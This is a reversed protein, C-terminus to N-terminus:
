WIIEFKIFNSIKIFLYNSNSLVEQLSTAVEHLKLWGIPCSALSILLICLAWIQIEFRMQFDDASSRRCVFQSLRHDCLKCDFQFRLESRSTRFATGHLELLWFNWCGSSPRFEVSATRFRYSDTQTEASCNSSSLSRPESESTRLSM